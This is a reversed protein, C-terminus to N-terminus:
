VKKTAFTQGTTHLFADKCSDEECGDVICASRHLPTRYLPVFRHSLRKVREFAPRMGVMPFADFPAARGGNERIYDLWNFLPEPATLVMGFNAATGVCALRDHYDISPKFTFGSVPSKIDLEVSGTWEQSVYEIQAVCLQEPNSSNIAEVFDGPKFSPRKAQKRMEAKDNQLPRSCHALLDLASKTTIPQIVKAPERQATISTEQVEQNRKRLHQLVMADDYQQGNFVQRNHM